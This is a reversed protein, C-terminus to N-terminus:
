CWLIRQSIDQKSICSIGELNEWMCLQSPGLVWVWKFIIKSGGKLCEKWPLEGRGAFLLGQGAGGRSISLELELEM